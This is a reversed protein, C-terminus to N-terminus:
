KLAQKVLYNRITSSIKNHMFLHVVSGLVAWFAAVIFFGCYISGRLYGIWLATGLSVFLLFAVGILCVIIRSLLISIVNTSKDIATLKTLEITTKGYETIKEFLSEIVSENEKM